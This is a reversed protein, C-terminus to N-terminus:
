IVGLSCVAREFHHRVAGPLLAVGGVALEIAELEVTEHAPPPQVKGPAKVSVAVTWCADLLKGVSVYM